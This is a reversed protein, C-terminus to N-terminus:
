NEAVLPIDGLRGPKAAEVIREIEGTKELKAGGKLTGTLVWKLNKDGKPMMFYGTSSLNDDKFTLEGAVHSVTLNYDPLIEKVSESINVKFAVNAIRCDLNIEKTIAKEVAVTTEGKFFQSTFSAPVSDGAWGEVKYNGTSLSFESQYGNNDPTWYKVIDGNSKSIVINLTKMLAEEDVTRSSKETLTPVLSPTIVIKGEGDAGSSNREDSCSVFFLIFILPIIYGKIHKTM